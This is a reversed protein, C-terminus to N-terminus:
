ATLVPMESLVRGCVQHQSHPSLASQEGVTPHRQVPIVSHPSLDSQEGVTPHHQVPIVSHPSLASQEGVTPHRQVPIVSKSARFRCRTETTSCVWLPVVWIQSPPLAGCPILVCICVCLMCPRELLVSCTGQVSCCSIRVIFVSCM